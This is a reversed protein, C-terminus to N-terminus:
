LAAVEVTYRHVVKKGAIVREVPKDLKRRKIRYSFVKDSTGATSERIHVKLTETFRTSGKQLQQAAQSYVKKAAERPSSSMYRGTGIDVKAGNVREIKVIAFSRSM